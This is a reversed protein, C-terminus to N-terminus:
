PRDNGRRWEELEAQERKHRRYAWLTLRMGGLCLFALVFSGFSQATNVLLLALGGLVLVIAAGTIEASYKGVGTGKTRIPM